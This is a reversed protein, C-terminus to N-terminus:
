TLGITSAGLRPWHDEQLWKFINRRMLFLLLCYASNALARVVSHFLLRLLNATSLCNLLM